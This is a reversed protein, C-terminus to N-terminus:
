RLVERKEPPVAELPAYQSRQLARVYWVIAWRDAVGIKSGYPPMTRVGNTITNYISGADRARLRDDHYSLPATWKAQGQDALEAARVAVMGNGYGSLGHCPACFIAYREQGRRLLEMTVSVPPEKVLTKGDSEMGRYYRPDANLEDRAVTGDVPLRTARGDAFLPDV